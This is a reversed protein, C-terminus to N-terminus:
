PSGARVRCIRQCYGREGVAKAALHFSEGTRHNSGRAPHDSMPGGPQSGPVSGALRPRKKRPFFLGGGARWCANRRTMSVDPAETGLQTRGSLPVCGTV